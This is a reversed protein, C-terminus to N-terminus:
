SPTSSRPANDVDGIQNNEHKGDDDQDDDNVDPHHQYDQHMTLIVLRITKMNELHIMMTIMMTLLMM